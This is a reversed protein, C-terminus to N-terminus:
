SRSPSCALAAPTTPPARSTADRGDDDVDVGKIPPVDLPSPLYDVVADLLPQVGKNKFASGAFCRCSCADQAHGQPDAAQADRRRARQGRSLGGDRRRRTRGARSWRTARYEARRTRWTPRSRSSVRVRRRPRRGELHGGEDDVLDVVGEFEDEAGIPLQLPVPKAGLRPEVIMRVCSYFDAGTKDMKNVFVIRPVKYKDAQRWVTETQPEVGANGDLVCSPATSCACRVSSRSPSTSTAPPTSSTSASTTGSRRHDRGVHHHHRAGAGAGDLGHDGRRRPGRRDQPSKGTYFLIRETTTTKGADIHAMIGINRYDSSPITRTGDTPGETKRIRNGATTALLGPQSRGDPPHRRAEQGRHRSQQVCRALEGALREVM